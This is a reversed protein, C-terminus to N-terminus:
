GDLASASISCMPRSPELCRHTAFAWGVPWRAALALSVEVAPAWVEISPLSKCKCLCSESSCNPVPSLSFVRQRMSQGSQRGM